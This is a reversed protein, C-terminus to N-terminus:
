VAVLHRINIGEKKFVNIFRLSFAGEGFGLGGTGTAPDYAVLRM